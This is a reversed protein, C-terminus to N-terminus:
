KVIQLYPLGEGRQRLQVVVEGNVLGYKSGQLERMIESKRLNTMGKWFESMETAHILQEYTEPNIEKEQEEDIRHESRVAELTSESGDLAPPTRNEVWGLFKLAAQKMVEVQEPDYEVLYEGYGFPTLAGVIADNHLGTVFMYWLVQLRYHEPLGDNWYRTSYKIEVIHMDGFETEAIADPNARFRSDELSAFTLNGSHISLDLHTEKLLQLIAPELVQGVRMLWTAPEAAKPTLKDVYLSYQSKYPSKNLLVAIESGGIGERRQELWEQSGAPHTGILKCKGIAEIREIHTNM